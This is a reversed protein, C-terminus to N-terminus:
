TTRGSVRIPDATLGYMSASGVCKIEISTVTTPVEMPGSFNAKVRSRALFMGGLSNLAMTGTSLVWVTTSTTWGSERTRHDMKMITPVRAQRSIM